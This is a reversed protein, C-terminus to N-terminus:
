RKFIAWKETEAFRKTKPKKQMLILMNHGQKHVGETDSRGPQVFAACSHLIFGGCRCTRCGGRGDGGGGGGARRQRLDGDVAARVSM